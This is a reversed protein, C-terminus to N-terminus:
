RRTSHGITTSTPMFPSSEGHLGHLSTRGRNLISVAFGLSTAEAVCASSIRGPRGLFLATPASM